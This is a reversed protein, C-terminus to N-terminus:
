LKDEGGGGEEEPFFSFLLVATNGHGQSWFQCLLQEYKIPQAKM